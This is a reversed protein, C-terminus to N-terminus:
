RPPDAFAEEPYSLSAKLTRLLRCPMLSALRHMAPRVKDGAINSERCRNEYLLRQMPHVLRISFTVNVLGSDFILSPDFCCGSVFKAGCSSAESQLDAIGAKKVAASM